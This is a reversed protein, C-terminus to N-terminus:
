HNAGNDVPFKSICEVMLIYWILMLVGFGNWGDIDDCCWQVVTDACFYQFVVDAYVDYDVIDVWIRGFVYFM